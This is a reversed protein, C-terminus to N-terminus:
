ILKFQRNAFIKSQNEVFYEHNLIDLQNNNHSENLWTYFSNRLQKNNNETLNYKKFNSRRKNLIKSNKEVFNDKEWLHPDDNM